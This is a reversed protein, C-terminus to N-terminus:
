EVPRINQLITKGGRELLTTALQIGLHEGDKENGTLSDELYETGDVSSVFGTITMQGNERRTYCGIPVQCGGELTRLFAREATGALWTEEHNIGAMLENIYTDGEKTEIAIIGQSPPPMLQDPELIETIYDDLGIRQLGAAAMIMVDCYGEEMKRLRTNVNGRIDNIQFDPNHRLLSARRRLSSTALIDETTLEDLKKGERSVLADRYEARELVAALKLGEPLTTPLDKLSHVALDVEGAVMAMEIEKTFLGKDGIKSLAVDLIKDGKTHIIKIEVPLDPYTSELAEKVANAQYLALQSGRTGIRVTKNKM